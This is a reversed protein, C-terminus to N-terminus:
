SLPKPTMGKVTPLLALAEKQRQFTRFVRLHKSTKLTETETVLSLSGVM